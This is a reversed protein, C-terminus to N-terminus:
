KKIELPYAVAWEKLMDLVVGCMDDDMFPCKHALIMKLAADTWGTVGAAQYAWAKVEDPTENWEPSGMVLWNEINVKVGQAQVCGNLTSEPGM